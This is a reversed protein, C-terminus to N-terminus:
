IIIKFYFASTGYLFGDHLCVDRSWTPKFLSFFLLSLISLFPNRKVANRFYIRTSLLWNRFLHSTKARSARSINRLSAKFNSRPLMPGFNSVPLQNNRCRAIPSTFRNAVGNNCKQIKSWWSSFKNSRSNNLSRNRGIAIGGSSKLNRVWRIYGM